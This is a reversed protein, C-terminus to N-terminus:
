FLFDLLNHALVLLDLFYFLGQPLQLILTQIFLLQLNLPVSESGLQTAVSLLDLQVIQLLLIDPHPVEDESDPITNISSVKTLIALFM